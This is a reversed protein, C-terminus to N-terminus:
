FYDGDVEVLYKDAASLKFDGNDTAGSITPAYLLDEVEFDVGVAGNLEAVGPVGRRTKVHAKGVVMLWKESPALSQIQLTALYNFLRLRQPKWIDPDANDALMASLEYNYGGALLSDAPITRIGQAHAENMMEVREIDSGRGPSFETNVKDNPWAQLIDQGERSDVLIEVYLVKVGNKKLGGMQEKLMKYLVVTDMERHSEGIIVGKHTSYTKDFFTELTESASISPLEIPSPTHPKSFFDNVDKELRESMLNYERESMEPTRLYQEVPPAGGMLGGPDLQWSGERWVIPMGQGLQRRPDRIRVSGWGNDSYVEFVRQQGLERDIVYWKDSGERVYFTGGLGARPANTKSLDAPNLDHRSFLMNLRGGPTLGEAYRRVSRLTQDISAVSGLSAKGVALSAKLGPMFDLADAWLFASVLLAEGTEGRQTLRIVESVDHALLPGTLLACPVAGVGATGTLCAGAAAYRGGKLIENGIVEDKSTTVEQTNVIIDLVRQDCAVAFSGLPSVSVRVRGTSLGRLAEDIVRRDKTLVRQEVADRLPETRLWAIFHEDLRWLSKGWPASAVYVFSERRAEAQRVPTSQYRRSLVWMGPIRVGNIDLEGIEEKTGALAGPLRDVLSKLWRSEDPTLENNDSAAQVSVRLRAIQDGVRLQQFLAYHDTNPGLLARVHAIYDDGAYTARLNAEVSQKVAPSNLLAQLEPDEATLWADQQFNNSTVNPRVLDFPQDGHARYGELVWETLPMCRGNYDILVSDADVRVQPSQPHQRQMFRTLKASEQRRTFERLTPLHEATFAGLQAAIVEAESLRAALAASQSLARLQRDQVALRDGAWQALTQTFDGGTYPQFTLCAADWRAPKDEIGQFFQRIRPRDEAAALALVQEELLLAPSTGTEPQLEGILRQQLRRQDLDQFLEQRTNYLQWAQNDPRYLVVEGSGERAGAREILLWNTLNVAVAQPGTGTSFMLLGARVGPVNRLADLAIQAGDLYAGQGMLEGKFRAELLDRHFEAELSRGYLAQLQARQTNRRTAVEDLLPQWAGENRLFGLIAARERATVVQDERWVVADHTQLAPAVRCAQSLSFRTTIPELVPLAQLRSNFSVEYEEPHGPLGQQAWYDQARARWLGEPAPLAQLLARNSAFAAIVYSFWLQQERQSQGKLWQMDPSELLHPGIAAFLQEDRTGGPPTLQQGHQVAMVVESVPVTGLGAIVAMEGDSAVSRKFRGVRTGGSGLDEHLLQTVQEMVSLSQPEDALAILEGIAELASTWTGDEQLHPALQLTRIIAQERDNLPTQVSLQAEPAADPAFHRYMAQGVTYGGCVLGTVAASGGAILAALRSRHVPLAGGAALLGQVVMPTTALFPQEQSDMEHSYHGDRAIDCAMAGPLGFAPAPHDAIRISSGQNTLAGARARPPKSFTLGPAAACDDELPQTSPAALLHSIQRPMWRTNELGEIRAQIIERQQQQITTTALPTFPLMPTFRSVAEIFGPYLDRVIQENAATPQASAKALAECFRQEHTGVRYSQQILCPALLYLAAEMAQQRHSSHWPSAQRHRAARAYSKLCFRAIVAQPTDHSQKIKRLLGQLVKTYDLAPCADHMKEALGNIAGALDATDVGAEQLTWTVSYRLLDKELVARETNVEPNQTWASFFERLATKWSFYDSLRQLLEQAPAPLTGNSELNPAPHLCSPSGAAMRRPLGEGCCRNGTAMLGQSLATGQATAPAGLAQAAAQPHSSQTSNVANM